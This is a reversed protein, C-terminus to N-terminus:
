DMIKYKPEQLTNAKSISKECTGNSQQDKTIFSYVLQIKM